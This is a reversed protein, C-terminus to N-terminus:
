FFRPLTVVEQRFFLINIIKDPYHNAKKCFYKYRQLNDLYEM